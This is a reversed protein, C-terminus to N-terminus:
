SDLNSCVEREFRKIWIYELFDLLAFDLSALYKWFQSSINKTLSNGPEGQETKSNKNKPKPISRLKLKINKQPLLLNCILFSFLNEAREPIM